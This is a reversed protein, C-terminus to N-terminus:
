NCAVSKLRHNTQSIVTLVGLSEFALTVLYDGALSKFEDVSKANGIADNVDNGITMSNHKIIGALYEQQEESFDEFEM